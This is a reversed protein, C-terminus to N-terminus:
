GVQLIDTIEPLTDLLEEVVQTITTDKKAAYLRLKNMRRETIRIHLEKKTM